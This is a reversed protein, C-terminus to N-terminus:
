RGAHHYVPIGPGTKRNAFHALLRKAMNPCLVTDNARGYYKATGKDLKFEVYTQIIGWDADATCYQMRITTGFLKGKIKGITETDFFHKDMNEPIIGGFMEMFEKSFNNKCGGNQCGDPMACETKLLQKM